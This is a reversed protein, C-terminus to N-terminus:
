RYSRTIGAPFGRQLSGGSIRALIKEHFYADYGTLAPYNVQHIGMAALEAHQAPTNLRGSLSIYIVEIRLAVLIRALRVHHPALADFVLVRRRGLWGSGRVDPM